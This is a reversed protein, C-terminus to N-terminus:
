RNEPQVRADPVTLTHSSARPHTAQTGESTRGDPRAAMIQSFITCLFNFDLYLELLIMYIKPIETVFYFTFFGWRPYSEPVHWTAREHTLVEILDKWRHTLHVHHCQSLKIGGLVFKREVNQRDVATRTLRSCEQAVAEFLHGNKTLLRSLM